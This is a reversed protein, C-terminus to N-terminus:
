VLHGALEVDEGEFWKVAAWAPQHHFGDDAVAAVAPGHELEGGSPDLASEGGGGVPEGLHKGAPPDSFDVGDEGTIREV